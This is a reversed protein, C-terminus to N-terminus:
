ASGLQRLYERLASALKHADAVTLRVELTTSRKATVHLGRIAIPREVIPFRDVESGYYDGRLSM